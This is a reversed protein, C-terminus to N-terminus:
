YLRKEAQDRDVSVGLGLDSFLISILFLIFYILEVIKLGLLILKNTCVKSFLFM